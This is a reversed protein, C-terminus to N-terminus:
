RDAKWGEALAGKLKIQRGLEFVEVFLRGKRRTSEEKRGCV